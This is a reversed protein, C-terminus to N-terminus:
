FIKKKKFFFQLSYGSVLFEPEIEKIHKRKENLFFLFLFPPFIM